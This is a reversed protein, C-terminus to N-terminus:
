RRPLRSLSRDVVRFTLWFRLPFFRLVGVWPHRLLSERGLLFCPHSLLLHISIFCRPLGMPLRMGGTSQRLLGSLASEFSWSLLGLHKGALSLGTLACVPHDSATCSCHEASVWRLPRSEGAYAGGLAVSVWWQARWSHRPAGDLGSLKGGVTSFVKSHVPQFFHAGVVFIQTSRSIRDGLDLGPNSVPVSGSGHGSGINLGKDLGPVLGTDLGPRYGNSGASGLSGAKIRKVKPKLFLRRLLWGLNFCVQALQQKTAGALAPEFFFDGYWFPGASFKIHPFVNKLTWFCKGGTSQVKLLIRVEFEM